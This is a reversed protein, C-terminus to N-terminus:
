DALFYDVTTVVRVRKNIQSGEQIGPAEDRPLIQFVGQNARRIGGLRSGSDAAFKEAAERARATAEAIMEPKVDNLRTYLYTPGAYGYDQGSTLVVGAKVLEGLAQSAALIRDPKGSRVMLTQNIVYRSTAPTSQYSNARADTVRVGQLEIEEAALGQRTLFARALDLNAALQAQAASLDDSTVVFQLPWLAVDATVERESFGKVTVFRDSERGAEFGEGIKLGARAIGLALIVASLFVVWSRM